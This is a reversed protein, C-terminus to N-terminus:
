RSPREPRTGGSPRSGPGPAVGGTQGGPRPRFGEVKWTGGIQQLFFQGGSALTAKAEDGSVKVSEFNVDGAAPLQSTDIGVARACAELAAKGTLTTSGDSVQLNCVTAEDGDDVAEVYTTVTAQVQVEDPQDSAATTTTATTTPKATTTTTTRATTTTKPETSTTAAAPATSSPSGASPVTGTSASGGGDAGGSIAIGLGVGIAGVVLVVLGIQWGRM